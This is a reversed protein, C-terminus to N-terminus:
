YDFYKQIDKIVFFLLVACVVLDLALIGMFLVSSKVFIIDLFLVIAFLLGIQVLNVLSRMGETPM